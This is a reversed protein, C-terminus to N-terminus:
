DGTRPLIEFEVRNSRCIETRAQRFLYFTGFTGKLPGVQGAIGHGVVDPFTLRSSRRKTIFPKGTM